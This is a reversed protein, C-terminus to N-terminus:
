KIDSFQQAIADIAKELVSRPCGFNLRFHCRYRDGGFDTGDNLAVKAGEILRRRVEEHPLGYGSFDLWALFSAQPLMAVVKPLKHPLAERLYEENGKLYDLLQTLWEEGEKTFAATAGVYAFVNGNAVEFTELYDFYAKRIIPDPIYCVSSGLGAINFTKSPAYFMLCRNRAAQSVSAFPTHHNGPLTLDAHIEDDIVVVRYKQCLDAIRRLEDATWIHGGPNHPNSLIFLKSKALKAEFDTWDIEFRGEVVELPSCLLQRHSRHPLHVFPPYVPTFTLIKDGPETFTEIAFAIGAVIGPVFHMEHRQAEIGYHRSLWQRMTTFYATTGFSYGLVPHECRAKLAEIVCDPSRFDMDAVWMPLIDTCGFDREMMDWKVCGTNHRDIIEDFNYKM